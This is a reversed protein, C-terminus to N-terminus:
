WVPRETQDDHEQQDPKRDCQDERPSVVDSRLADACGRRGARGSRMTPAIQDHQNRDAHDDGGPRSEKKQGSHRRALDVLRNGDQGELTEAIFLLVGVEGVAHLVIDQRIKRLDAIQFDDRAHRDHRISAIPCAVSAFNAFREAYAVSSSPLTRRM